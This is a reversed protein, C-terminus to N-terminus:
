AFNEKTGSQREFRSRVINYEVSELVGIM